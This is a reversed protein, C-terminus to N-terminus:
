SKCAQKTKNGALSCNYTVQKGNRLTAKALHTGSRPAASRPKAPAAAATRAPTTAKAKVPTAAAPKAAMRAAPKAAVSATAPHQQTAAIAPAGAMMASALGFAILTRFRAM